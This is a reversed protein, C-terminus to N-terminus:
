NDSFVHSEYKRHSRIFHNFFTPIRGLHWGHAHHFLGSFRVSPFMHSVPFEMLLYSMYPIM